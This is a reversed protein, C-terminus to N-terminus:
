LSPQADHMIRYMICDHCSYETHHMPHYLKIQKHENFVCLRKHDMAWSIRVEAGVYRKIGIMM